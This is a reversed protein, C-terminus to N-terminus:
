RWQPLAGEGPRGGTRRGGVSPLARAPLARRPEHGLRHPSARSSGSRRHRTVSQSHAPRQVGLGALEVGRPERGIKHAEHLACQMGVHALESLCPVVAWPAVFASAVGLAVLAPPEGPHVQCRVGAVRSRCKTGLLGLGPSELTPQWPMATRSAVRLPRVVGAVASGLEERGSPGALGQPGHAPGSDSRASCPHALGIRGDGFDISRLALGAAGGAVSRNWRRAHPAVPQPPPPSLRLLASLEANGLNRVEGVPLDGRNGARSSYDAANRESEMYRVAWRM